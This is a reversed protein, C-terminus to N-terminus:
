CLITNSCYEDIPLVQTTESVRVEIDTVRHELQLRQAFTAFFKNFMEGGRTGVAFLQDTERDYELVIAALPQKAPGGLVRAGRKVDYVSRESCCFIVRSAERQREAADKYGVREHRYNIFSVAKAPHTMKHACIASFAVVSRNPGVGGPTSYESGDETMLAAAGEATEGLNILFCPTTVFPYHFVYNEGAMLDAYRLPQNESNVFLARNYLRTSAHPDRNALAANTTGVAVATMCLKVFDRRGILPRPCEPKKM